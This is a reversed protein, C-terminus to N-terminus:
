ANTVHLKEKTLVFAEMYGFFRLFTKRDKCIGRLYERLKTERAFKGFKDGSKRDRGIENAVHVRM